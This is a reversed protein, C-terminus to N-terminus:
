RGSTQRPGASERAVAANWVDAADTPTLGLSGLVHQSFAKDVDTTQHGELIERILAFAAGMIATLTVEIDVVAFRGTGLGRELAIRAYPYVATAFLVDAHNLNVLLRAFEPDRDALRMFRIIAGAVIEAPDVHSATDPITAASVETLIESVVVEVLEEKSSFHNYFSGLAVDARQTIEQIRLGSVGREAILVRGTDILKRRTRERRRDARTSAREIQENM